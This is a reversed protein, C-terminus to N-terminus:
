RYNDKGRINGHEPLVQGTLIDNDHQDLGKELINLVTKYNYLNYEIARKCANILRDEGVKKALSLVGMCSKYAQEPHQKRELIGAIFEKVHDDISEAWNIFRQPTWETIFKHSSALHEAITSYSYPRYVRPHVAIRNYKYYVEVQGASYLLKVKKRIFQYPVSYYHKDQGLYVHGNLMVTAFSQQKLEYRKVPLPSLVDREVEDFLEQRSYPRGSLKSANHTELLERIAANIEKLSFFNKDRLASYVRTYLIKVAGEV